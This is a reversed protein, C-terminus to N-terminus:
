PRGTGAIEVEVIELRALTATGVQMAALEPGPTFNFTLQSTEAANAAPGLMVISGVSLATAFRSSRTKHCLM